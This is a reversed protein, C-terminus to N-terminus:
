LEAAIADIHSLMERGGAATALVAGTVPVGLDVAIHRVRRWTEQRVEPDSSLMNEAGGELIGTGLRSMVGALANVEEWDALRSAM